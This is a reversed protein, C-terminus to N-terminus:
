NAHVGFKSAFQILAKEGKVAELAVKIKFIENYDMRMNRVVAQGKRPM